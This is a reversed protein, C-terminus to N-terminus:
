DIDIHRNASVVDKVLFETFLTVVPVLVGTVATTGEALNLVFFREAAIADEVIAFGTVVPILVVGISAQVDTFCGTAAIAKEPVAVLGAVIAVVEVGVITEVGALRSRTAVAKDPITL